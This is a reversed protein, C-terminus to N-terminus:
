QEKPRYVIFQAPYVGTNSSFNTKVSISKTLFSDQASSLIEVDDGKLRSHAHVRTCVCVSM